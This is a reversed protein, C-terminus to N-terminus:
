RIAAKIYHSQAPFVADTSIRFDISAVAFVQAVICLVPPESNDGFRLAGGHIWVVLPESDTNNPLYLDLLLPHQGTEAYPIDSLVTMPSSQARVATGTLLGGSLLGCALLGIIGYFGCIRM